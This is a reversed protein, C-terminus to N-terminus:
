KKIEGTGENAADICFVKDVPTLVDVASFRQVLYDSLAKFVPGKLMNGTVDAVLDDNDFILVTGGMQSLMIRGADVYAHTIKAMDIFWNDVKIFECCLEVHQLGNSLPVLGSGERIRFGTDSPKQKSKM